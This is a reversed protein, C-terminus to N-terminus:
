LHPNVLHWLNPVQETARFLGITTLNDWVKAQDDPTLRLEVYHTYDRILQRSVLVAHRVNRFSLEKLVSRHAEREPRCNDLVIDTELLDKTVLHELHSFYAYGLDDALTWALFTKGTGAPGFLNVTCPVKLTRQLATLTEQQSPTLWTTNRRTKISNLARVFDSM